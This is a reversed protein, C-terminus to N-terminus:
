RTGFLVSASSPVYGDQYGLLYPNSGAVDCPSFCSMGLDLGVNSYSASSCSQNQVGVMFDQERASSQLNIVAVHYTYGSWRVFCTGNASSNGLDTLYVGRSGPFTRHQVRLLALARARDPTVALGYAVVDTPAFYLDVGSPQGTTIRYPVRWDPLDFYSTTWDNAGAQLIRVTARMTVLRDDTVDDAGIAIITEGLVAVTATGPARLVIRDAGVVVRGPRKAGPVSTCPQVLVREGGGTYAIATTYPLSLSDQPAGTQPDLARLEAKGDGSLTTCDPQGPILPPQAHIVEVRGSPAYAAAIPPALPSGATSIVDIPLPDGDTTRSCLGGLDRILHIRGVRGTTQPPKVYSLLMAARDQPDVVIAQTPSSPDLDVSGRDELKLTDVIHLKGASSAVLLSQGDVTGAAALVPASLGGSKDFQLDYQSILLSAANADVVRLKSEDRLPASIQKNPAFVAMMPAVPAVLKSNGGFFLLPRRLEFVVETEGSGWSVGRALALGLLQQGGAGLTHLRFDASESAKIRGLELDINATGGVLLPDFRTQAWLLDSKDHVIALSTARPDTLPSLLADDPPPAAHVRFRVSWALTADRGCGVISTTTLYLLVSAAYGGLHGTMCSSLGEVWSHRRQM